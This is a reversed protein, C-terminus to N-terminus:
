TTPHLHTSVEQWGNARLCHSVQRDSTQSCTPSHAPSSLSGALRKGQSLPQSDTQRRCVAWIQDPQPSTTTPWWLPGRGGGPGGGGGGRGDFSQSASVTWEHALGWPPQGAYLPVTAGGAPCFLIHSGPHSAIVWQLNLPLASALQVHGCPVLAAPM